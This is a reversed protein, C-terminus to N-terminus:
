NSENGSGSENSEENGPGQQIEGTVWTEYAVSKNEFVSPDTDEFTITYELTEGPALDDFAEQEGGSGFEQEFVGVEGENTKLRAHAVVRVYPEDGTNKITGMVGFADPTRFLFHETIKLGEANEETLISGEINFWGPDQPVVPEDGQDSENSGEGAGPNTDNGPGAESCGAVSLSLAAIGTSKLLTRRDM